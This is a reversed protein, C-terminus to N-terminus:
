QNLAYGPVDVNVYAVACTENDCQYRITYWYQSEDTFVEQRQELDCLDELRKLCNPCRIEDAGDLEDYGVQFYSSIYDLDVPVVPWAEAIQQIQQGIDKDEPNGDTQYNRIGFGTGASQNELNYQADIFQFFENARDWDISTDVKVGMDYVRSIKM